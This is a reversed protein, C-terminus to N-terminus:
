IRLDTMMVVMVIDDDGGNCWAEDRDCGIHWLTITVMGSVVMAVDDGDDEGAGYCDDPGEDDYWWWRWLM